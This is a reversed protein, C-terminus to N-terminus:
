AGTRWGNTQCRKLDARSSGNSEVNDPPEKRWIDKRLGKTTTSAILGIRAGAYDVVTRKSMTETTTISSVESVKPPQHHVRNCFAPFGPGRGPTDCSSESFRNTRQPQRIPVPSWMPKTRSERVPEIQESRLPVRRRVGSAAPRPLEHQLRLPSPRPPEAWGTSRGPLNRLEPAAPRREEGPM